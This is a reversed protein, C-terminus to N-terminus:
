EQRDPAASILFGTTDLVQGSPTVRAGYLEGGGSHDDRWTVLANAGDFAIAPMSQWAPNPAIPFGNPDLVQGSGTVRAARINRPDYEADWAVLFGAATACVVPTEEWLLSDAIAVSPSDLVVGAPSVRAGYIDFNDVRYDAWVVLYNTGDFAVAPTEQVQGEDSITVEPELVIGDPAIRRARMHGNAGYVVLYNVGDFAVALRNGDGSPAVMMGSPDLVEGTPSVRAAYLAEDGSREDWWVALFNTGDFGVAPDRVEGPSNLHATDILFEGTPLFQALVVAPLLIGLAPALVSFRM